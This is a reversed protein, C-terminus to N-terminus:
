PTHLLEGASHTLGWFPHRKLLCRTDLQHHLAHAISHLLAQPSHRNNRRLRLQFLVWHLDQHYYCNNVCMGQLSFPPLTGHSCCKSM